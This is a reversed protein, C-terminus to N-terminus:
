FTPPNAMRQRMEWRLADRRKENPAKFMTTPSSLRAGSLQVGDSVHVGGALSSKARPTVNEIGWSPRASGGGPTPAHRAPPAEMGPSSKANTATRPRDSMVDTMKVQKKEALVKAGRKKAAELYRRRRRRSRRRHHHHFFM